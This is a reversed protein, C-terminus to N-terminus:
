SPSWSSSDIEIPSVSPLSRTSVRQPYPPTPDPLDDLEDSSSSSLPEQKIKGVPDSPEISPIPIDAEIATSRLNWWLTPQSSSEPTSLSRKFRKNRSVEPTEELPEELSSQRTIKAPVESHIRLPIIVQIEPPPSRVTLGYIECSSPASVHTEQFDAESLSVCSVEPSKSLQRYLPDRFESYTNFFNETTSQLYFFWHDLLRELRRYGPRSRELQSLSEKTLPVARPRDRCQGKVNRRPREAEDSQISRVESM